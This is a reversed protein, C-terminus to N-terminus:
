LKKLCLIDNILGLAFLLTRFFLFICSNQCTKVFCFLVLWIKSNRCVFSNICFFCCCCCCVAKRWGFVAEVERRPTRGRAGRPPPPASALPHVPLSSAASSPAPPLHFPHTTFPSASCSTNKKLKKPPYKNPIKSSKQTKPKAPNPLYM